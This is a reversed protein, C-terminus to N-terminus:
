AKKSTASQLTVSIPVITHRPLPAIRIPTTGYRFMFILDKDVKLDAKTASKIQEFKVLTKAPLASQTSTSDVFNLYLSQITLPQAQINNESMLIWMRQVERGSEFYDRHNKFNGTLYLLGSSNKVLGRLRLLTQALFMPVPMWRILKPFHRFIRLSLSESFSVRLNALSMGDVATEINLRLWAVFDTMLATKLWLQTELWSWQVIRKFSVTRVRQWQFDSHNEITPFRNQYAKLLDFETEKFPVRYTQRTRIAQILSFDHKEEISRYKVIVSHNSDHEFSCEYGFHAASLFLNEYFCGLAIWSASQNQDLFHGLKVPDIAIRFKGDLLTVLWPQCNDGSPATKALEIWRVFRADM